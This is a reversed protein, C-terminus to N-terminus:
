MVSIEPAEARQKVAGLWGRRILDSGPYIVRWYRAFRRRAGADTAYVRTETSLISGGQGNPEILFNMAAKAYGPGTIAAFADATAPRATGPPSMVVTGVVLERSPEDALWLFTTQTAVDLIPKSEPANLISEPGSRGFRRIWVLTQFLRIEPATVQKLARYVREPPADIRTSHLENFQYAPFHRDLLTRPPSVRTEPAPLSWGVLVLLAGAGLLALGRRRSTLRLRRIPRITTVLGM